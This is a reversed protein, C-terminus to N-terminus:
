VAILADGVRSSTTGAARASREGPAAKAGKGTALRGELAVRGTWAGGGVALDSSGGSARRKPRDQFDDDAEGGAFPM